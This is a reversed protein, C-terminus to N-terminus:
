PLYSFCTTSYFGANLFEQKNWLESKRKIDKVFYDQTRKM